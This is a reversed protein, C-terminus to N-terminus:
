KSSGQLAVSQPLDLMQLGDLYETLVIRRINKLDQVVGTMRQLSLRIQKLCRESEDNETSRKELLKLQLGIIGMANNLEHNLTRAVQQLMELKREENSQLQQALHNFAVSLEGFEDKQKVQVRYEFHEQAWQRSAFVLKEVPRLVMLAARLMLVFSGNLVVLFGIALSIVIGRFRETLRGQSQRSQSQIWNTTKMIHIRIHQVTKRALELDRMSMVAPEAKARIAILDIILESESLLKQYESYIPSGATNHSNSGFLALEPTIMRAAEALRKVALGAMPASQDELQFQIAELSQDLKEAQSMVENCSTMEDRQKALVDQLLVLTVVALVLLLTTVGLFILLLKGRLMM